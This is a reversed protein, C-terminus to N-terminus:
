AGTALLGGLQGRHTAEGRERLIGWRSAQWTQRTRVDLATLWGHRWCATDIWAVYGLDCVESDRQETHGVVVPKGSVHPKADAPEFLVWRLQHEPHEDMPLEPLYGAHTFICDDTEYYPLASRLFKWHEPPITELTAGFRYSNLTAVGGCHEWYRLAQESEPAALLMEEHNGMILRVRTRSQLAILTEIVERSDRGQDILDGLFVLEDDPTPAIADLLTDLALACGHIDGIAISRGLPAPM